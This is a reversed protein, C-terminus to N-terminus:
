AEKADQAEVDTIGGEGIPIGGSRLDPAGLSVGLARLKEALVTVRATEGAVVTPENRILQRETFITHGLAALDRATMPKRREVGKKDKYKEGKEVRDIMQEITMEHLKTLQADLVANRARRLETVEDQWWATKSAATLEQIPIDLQRSVEALSGHLVYLRVAELPVIDNTKATMNM